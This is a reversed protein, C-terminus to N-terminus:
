AAGGAHDLGGGGEENLYEGYYEGCEACADGVLEDDVRGPVLNEPRPGLPSRRHRSGLQRLDKGAALRRGLVPQAGAEESTRPVLRQDHAVRRSVPAEEHAGDDVHHGRGLPFPAPGRRAQLDDDVRPVDSQLQAVAEDEIASRIARAGFDSAGDVPELRSAVERGDGEALGDRM